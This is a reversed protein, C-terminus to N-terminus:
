EMQVAGPSRGWGAGLNGLALKEGPVPKAKEYQKQVIPINRM